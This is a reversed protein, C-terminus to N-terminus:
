QTVVAFRYIVCETSNECLFQTFAPCNDQVLSTWEMCEEEEGGQEACACVSSWGLEIVQALM